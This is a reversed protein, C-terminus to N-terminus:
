PPSVGKKFSRRLSKGITKEIELPKTTDIPPAPTKGSRKNRKIQYQRTEKVAKQLRQFEQVIAKQFSEWEVYDSKLDEVANRYSLKSYGKLELIALRTANGKPTRQGFRRSALRLEVYTEVLNQNWSKSKVGIVQRINSALPHHSNISYLYMVWLLVALLLVSLISRWLLRHGLKRTKLKKLSTKKSYAM